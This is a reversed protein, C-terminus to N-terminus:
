FHRRMAWHGQGGHMLGKLVDAAREHGDQYEQISIYMYIYSSQSKLVTISQSCLM